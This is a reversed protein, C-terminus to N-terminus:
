CQGASGFEQVWYPHVPAARGVAPRAPAWGFGVQTFRPDLLVARHEPSAVWAAMVEAVSTQGRALNEGVTVGTGAAIYSGAQDRQLVDSGDPGVHAFTASSSLLAAYGQAVNTLSACLAVPAAGAVAREANVAAQMEVMWTPVRMAPVLPSPAPVQADAPGSGADAGADVGVPAPLQAATDSFGDDASTPYGAVGTDVPPAPRPAPVPAVSPPTSAPERRSAIAAAEGGRVLAPHAATAALVLAAVALAVTTVARRLVLAPDPGLLARTCREGGARVIGAREGEIGDGNM